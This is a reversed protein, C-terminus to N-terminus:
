NNGKKIEVPIEDGYIEDTFPRGDCPRRRLLALDERTKLVHARTPRLDFLCDIFVAHDPPCEVSARMLVHHRPRSTEWCVSCRFAELKYKRRLEPLREEIWQVKERKKREKPPPTPVESPASLYYFNFNVNRLDSVPGSSLLIEDAEGRAAPTPVPGAYNAWVRGERLAVLTANASVAPTFSPGSSSTLNTSNDM